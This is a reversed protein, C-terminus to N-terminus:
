RVQFSASAKVVYQAGGDFARLEYRGPKLPRSFERLGSTEGDLYFWEGYKTPPAGPEAIALWDRKESSMGVFYVEVPEGVQYVPKLMLVAPGATGSAGAATAAQHLRETFATALSARTETSAMSPASIGPLVAALDFPATAGLFERRIKQWDLGYTTYGNAWPYRTTAPLGGGPGRDSLGYITMIQIRTRPLSRDYYDPNHEILGFTCAADGAVAVEPPETGRRILCAPRKADEAALKALRAEAQAKRQTALNFPHHPNAAIDWQTRLDKTSAEVEAERNARVKAQQEPTRAAQREIRLRIIREEEALAAPVFYADYQQRATEIISKLRTLEKSLENIQWRIVRNVPVARFLPRNNLPIVLTLTADHFASADAAGFVPFGQFLYSIRADSYFEGQADSASFEGIDQAKPLRNFRFSLPSMEGKRLPGNPTKRSLDRTTWNWLVFSSQLAFGAEILDDSGATSVLPCFGVPPNFVAATKLGAIVRELQVKIAARDVPSVNAGGSPKGGWLTPLWRCEGRAPFEQKSWENRLDPNDDHPSIAISPTGAAPLPVLEGPHALIVPSQPVRPSQAWATHGSAATVAGLAVCLLVPLRHSLTALFPSSFLGTVLKSGDSFYRM